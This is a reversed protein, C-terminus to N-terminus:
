GGVRNFRLYFYCVDSRDPGHPFAGVQSKQCKIKYCVVYKLVIIICEFSNQPQSDYCCDDNWGVCWIMM